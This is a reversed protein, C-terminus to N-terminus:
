GTIMWEKEKDFNDQLDDFAGVAEEPNDYVLAHTLNDKTVVFIINDKTFMYAVCDGAVSFRDQNMEVVNMKSMDTGNQKECKLM